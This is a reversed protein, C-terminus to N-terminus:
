RLGRSRQYATLRRFFWVWVVVVGAVAVVGLLAALLLRHGAVGVLLAVVLLASFPWEVALTLFLARRLELPWRRVSALADQPRSM